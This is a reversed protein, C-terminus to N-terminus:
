GINMKLTVTEDAVFDFNLTLEFCSSLEVQKEPTFETLSDDIRTIKPTVILHTTRYYQAFHLQNAKFPLEDVNHIFFRVGNMLYKPHHFLKKKSEILRRFTDYFNRRRQLRVFYGSRRDNTKWPFTENLAKSNFKVEYNAVAQLKLDRNSHNFYQPVRFHM